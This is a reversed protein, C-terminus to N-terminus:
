KYISKIKHIPQNTLVGLIFWTRTLHDFLDTPVITSGPNVTVKHCTAFREPQREKRGAGRVRKKKSSM